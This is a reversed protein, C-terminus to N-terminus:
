GLCTKGNIAAECGEQIDKLYARGMLEVIQVDTIPNAKIRWRLFRLM